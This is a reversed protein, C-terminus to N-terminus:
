EVCAAQCVPRLRRETGRHVTFASGSATGRDHRRSRGSLPEKETKDRVAKPVANPLNPHRGNM